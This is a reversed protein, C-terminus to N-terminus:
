NLTYETLSNEDLIYRIEVNMEERDQSEILVLMWSTSSTQEIEIGLIAEFNVDNMIDHAQLANKCSVELEIAEMTQQHKNNKQKHLDVYFTSTFCM